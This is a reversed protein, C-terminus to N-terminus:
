KMQKKPVRGGGQASMMHVLGRPIVVVALLLFAKERIVILVRLNYTAINNGTKQAVVGVVWAVVWPGIM